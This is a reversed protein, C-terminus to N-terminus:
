SREMEEEEEDESRYKVGTRLRPTWIKVLDAERRRRGKVKETLPDLWLNLFLCQKQAVKEYACSCTHVAGKLSRLFVFILSTLM